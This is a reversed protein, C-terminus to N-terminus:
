HGKWRADDRWAVPLGWVGPRMEREEFLGRVYDVGHVQALDAAERIDFDVGAFGTKRALDLSQELGFNRIGIAGPSLNKFMFNGKVDRATEECGHMIDM